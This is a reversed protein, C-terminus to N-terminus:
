KDSRLGSRIKVIAVAVLGITIGSSILVAILHYVVNQPSMADTIDMASGVAVFGFFLIGMGLGASGLFIRLTKM